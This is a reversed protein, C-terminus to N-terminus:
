VFWTWLLVALAVLGMVGFFSFVAGLFGFQKIADSESGLTIHLNSSFGLVHGAILHPRARIQELRGMNHTTNGVYQSETGLGDQREVVDRKHGYVHLDDGVTICREVQKVNAEPSWEEADGYINAGAPDVAIEGAGDRILFPEGETGSDVTRYGKNTKKQREWGYALCAQGSYKGEVTGDLETATGTFEVIGKSGQRVTQINLPDNQRLRIATYLQTGGFLLLSIDVAVVVAAVFLVVISM